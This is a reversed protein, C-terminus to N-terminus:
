DRGMTPQSTPQAIPAQQQVPQAMAAFLDRGAM